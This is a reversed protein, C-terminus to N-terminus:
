RITSDTGQATGSSRAKSFGTNWASYFGRMSLALIVIFATELLPHANSFYENSGLWGLEWAIDFSEALGFLAFGFAAWGFSRGMIGGKFLRSLRLGWFTLVSAAALVVVDLIIEV